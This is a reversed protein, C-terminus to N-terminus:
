QITAGEGQDAEEIPVGLGKKIEDQIVTALIMWDEYSMKVEPCVETFEHLVNFSVDRAFCTPCFGGDETHKTM